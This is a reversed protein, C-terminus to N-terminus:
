RNGRGWSEESVVNCNIATDTGIRKTGDRVKRRQQVCLLRYNKFNRKNTTWMTIGTTTPRVRGSKTIENCSSRLSRSLDITGSRARTHLVHLYFAFVDYLRRSDSLCQSMVIQRLLSRVIFRNLCGVGRGEEGRLRVLALCVHSLSWLIWRSGNGHVKKIIFLHFDMGHVQCRVAHISILHLYTPDAYNELSREGHTEYVTTKSWGSQEGAFLVGGNFHRAPM